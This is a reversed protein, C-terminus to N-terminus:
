AALKRNRGNGMADDKYQMDMHALHTYINTHVTQLTNKNLLIEQFAALSVVTGGFTLFFFFIEKYQTDCLKKTYLHFSNLM